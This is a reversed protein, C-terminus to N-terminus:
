IFGTFGGCVCVCSSGRMSDFGAPSVTGSADGKGDSLGVPATAMGSTTSATLKELLSKFTLMEAFTQTMMTRRKHDQRYTRSAWSIVEFHSCQKQYRVDELAHIVVTSPDFHFNGWIGQQIMRKVMLITMFQPAMGWQQVRLIEKM